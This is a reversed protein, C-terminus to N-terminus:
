PENVQSSLCSLRTPTEVVAEMKRSVASHLGRFDALEAAIAEIVPEWVHLTSQRWIKVSSYWPMRDGAQMYRWEPAAPVMVWVPTGLAGALHIASTCVSIVLDLAGILAATEDYSEQIEDFRHVTIGHRQQLMDIEAQSDTYQLSIFDCGGGSRFLPLLAELSLSRLGRRTKAVGGTWSLGIKPGRGLRGLRDRWSAVADQDAILYRKRSPFNDARRGIRGPLSGIPLQAVLPSALASRWAPTTQGDHAYV